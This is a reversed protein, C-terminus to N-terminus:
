KPSNFVDVWDYATLNSPKIEPHKAILTTARKSFKAPVAFCDAVLERYKAMSNIPILPQERLKIEILVTDVAPHPYYDTKRLPRRIRTTFLPALQAGLLGTFRRDDILLKHAFQKQVILYICKPPSEAETLKKLIPSSLHFPINAFVKCPTAPLKANLFDENLITVNQHKALNQRLAPLLRTDPEYALVQKCRGALVGAIIGSGAGIDLVTDNKRINSHGVLEAVLRPSQLFHQSKDSLRKM